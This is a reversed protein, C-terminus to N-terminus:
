LSALMKVNVITPSSFSLRSENINIDGYAIMELHPDLHYAGNGTFGYCMFPSKQSIENDIKISLGALYCFPLGANMQLEIMRPDNFAYAALSESGALKLGNTRADVREDFVSRSNNIPWGNGFFNVNVVYIGPHAYLWGSEDNHIQNSEFFLSYQIDPHTKEM